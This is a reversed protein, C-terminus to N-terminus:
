KKVKGPRHLHRLVGTLVQVGCWVRRSLTAGYEDILERRLRESLALADTTPWDQKRWGAAPRKRHGVHWCRHVLCWYVNLTSQQRDRSRLFAVLSEADKVQQFRQKYHCGIRGSPLAV